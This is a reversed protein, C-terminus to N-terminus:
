HSHSHGQDTEAKHLIQGSYGHIIYEWHRGDVSIYVAYCAEGDATTPHIDTSDANKERVGLDDLAIRIAEDTTLPGDKGCAALLGIAMVALLVLCIMRKAM